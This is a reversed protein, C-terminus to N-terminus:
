LMELNAGTGCGVDLIRPREAELKRCIERVFSELIRRRGVFWWHKGEMEYMIPYTHQMMEQPLTENFNETVSSMRKVIVYTQPLLPALIFGLMCRHRVCSQSNRPSQEPSM